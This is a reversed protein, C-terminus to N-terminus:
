ALMHVSVQGAVGPGQRYLRAIVGRGISEYRTTPSITRFFAAVWGGPTLQDTVIPHGALVLTMLVIVGLLLSVIQDQTFSSLFMAVAIFTAGLFIAGLYGGVTPGWDLPGFTAVTIPVYITVLACLVVGLRKRQRVAM